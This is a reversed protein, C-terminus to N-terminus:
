ANTLRRTLLTEKVLLAKELRRKGLYPIMLNLFDLVGQQTQVEWSWIPKRNPFQKPTFPGRIKGLQVISHFDRIVDEDTLNIAASVKISNKRWKGGLNYLGISVEGEFLGAAWALNRISM